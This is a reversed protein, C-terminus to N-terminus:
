SSSGSKSILLCHSSLQEHFAALNLDPIIAELRFQPPPHAQGMCTIGIAEGAPAGASQLRSHLPVKPASSGM